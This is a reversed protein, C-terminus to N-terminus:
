LVIYLVIAIHNLLQNVEKGELFIVVEEIHKELSVLEVERVDALKNWEQDDKVLVAPHEVAQIKALFPYAGECLIAIAEKESSAIM